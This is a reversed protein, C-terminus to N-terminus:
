SDLQDWLVKITVKKFNIGSGLDVGEEVTYLAGKTNDGPNEIDISSDNAVIWNNYDEQLISAADNLDIDTEAALNNYRTASDYGAKIKELWSIANVYLRVENVSYAKLKSTSIFLTFFAAGVVVLIMTSVLVEVMTFGRSGRKSYRM